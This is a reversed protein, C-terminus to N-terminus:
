APCIKLLVERSRPGDFEVLFIGQWTGLVLGGQDILLVLDFGLLSAKIHAASNGEAHRYGGNFPITQNLQNLIDARVSPDANENITIGATTHTVFLVCFGAKIKSAAIEKEILNTIEIFQTRQSTSIQLTKFKSIM